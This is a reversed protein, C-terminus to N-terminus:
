NAAAVAWASRAFEGALGAELEGAAWGAAHGERPDTSSELRSRRAPLAERVQRLDDCRQSELIADIRARGEPGLPRALLLTLEAATEADPEVVEIGLARWTETEGPAIVATAAPDRLLLLRQGPAAPLIQEFPVSDVAWSSGWEGLEIAGWLATTRAIPSAAAVIARGRAPDIVVTGRVGAEDLRDFIRERARERLPEALRAADSAVADDAAVLRVSPIRRHKAFHERLSAMLLSDEHVSLPGQPGIVVIAAPEQGEDGRPGMFLSAWTLALIMGAAFLVLAALMRGSGRAAGASTLGGRRARERPIGRSAATKEGVAGISSAFGAIEQEIRHITAEARGVPSEAARPAAAAAEDAAGGRMSPLEAPMVAFPDAAQRIFELDRRMAAASGYRKTYEAMARRVVWRLAEPSRKTFSSLGGHAPFTDELALYLMAGLGYLDFRAGDVDHVKAGRLAMRVMEPDRFYETGHTTLTMASSLSSVLGIDVLQARGEGVIVNDPKVDKHWLGAAHYRDLTAALDSVWALITALADADLGEQPGFRHLRHVAEGFHPGPYYPMAYWFRQGDLHHELVLGLRTAAEMARSERVIQPLTSGESLTFSKIVVRDFGAPLRVKAGAEPTAIFLKAGSGGAQLTGVVDYGSFASSDITAAPSPSAMPTGSGRPAAARRLFPVSLPYRYWEGANAKVGAVITLSLWLLAVVPLILLGVLLPSLLVGVGAALTMTINFNIAERGQHDLFRHSGKKSAWLITPAVINALPVMLGCLSLLHAASGLSREDQLPPPPAVSRPLPTRGAPPPPPALPSRPAAQGGVQDGVEGRAPGPPRGALHVPRRLLRAPRDWVANRLCRGIGMVRANIAAARREAAPWRGLLVLAIATGANWAIPVLSLTAAVLDFVGGVVIAITAGILSLIAGILRLITVMAFAAFALLMAALAILALVLLISQISIM